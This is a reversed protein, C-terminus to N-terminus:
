PVKVSKLYAIIKQRVKPDVVPPYIMTTSPSVSSPSAIFRDLTAEDWILGALGGSYNRYDPNQGARSDFIGYLTPGLRNDGNRTSHCNRCHNNFEIQGIAEHSLAVPIRLFGSGQLAVAGLALPLWRM